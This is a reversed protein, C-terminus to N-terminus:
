GLDHTPKFCTRQNAVSRQHLRDSHNPLKPGKTQAIPNGKLDFVAVSDYIPYAKLFQELVANKEATSTSQRDKPDTFIDLSSMIQIDGYREWMFQNIHSQVETALRQDNKEITQRNSEKLEIYATSGVVLIPVASIAVALLTAKLRLSLSKWPILRNKQVKANVNVNVEKTHAPVSSSIINSTM